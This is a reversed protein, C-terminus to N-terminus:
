IHILSLDMGNILEASKQSDCGGLAALSNDVLPVPIIGVDDKKDATIQVYVFGFEGVPQSFLDMGPFDRFAGAQLCAKDTGGGQIGSQPLVATFIRIEGNQKVTGQFACGAQDAAGVASVKMIGAQAHFPVARIRRIFIKCLRLLAADTRYAALVGQGYGAANLYPIDELQSGFRDRICM